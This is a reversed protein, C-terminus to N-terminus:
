FVVKIILILLPIFILFSLDNDSFIKMTEDVLRNFSSIDVNPLNFQPLTLDIDGIDNFLDSFWNFFTDSPNINGFLGLLLDVLGDFINSFFGLIKDVLSIITELLKSLWGGNDTDVFPNFPDGNFYWNNETNNINNINQLVDYTDPDPVTYNYVYYNTYVKESDSPPASTVNYIIQWNGVYSDDYTRLRIRYIWGKKFFVGRASDYVNFLNNWWNVTVNNTGFLAKAVTDWTFSYEGVNPSITILDSWSGTVMDNITQNLLDSKTNAEFDVTAAQIDVRLNIDNLDNGNSDQYNDWTIVDTNLAMQSVNSQQSNVFKTYFGVNLLDGFHRVISGEGYTYYIAEPMVSGASNSISFGVDYFPINGDSVTYLRTNYNYYYYYTVGEYVYSSANFGASTLSCNQNEPYFNNGSSYGYRFPNKSVFVYAKGASDSSYLYVGRVDSNNEVYFSVFPYYSDNHNLTKTYNLTCGNNTQLKYPDDAFLMFPMANILLVVIILSVIVKHIKQM